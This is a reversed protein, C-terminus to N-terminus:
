VLYKVSTYFLRKMGGMQGIKTQSGISCVAMQRILRVGSGDWGVRVGPDEGWCWGRSLM